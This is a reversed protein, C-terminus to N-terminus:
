DNRYFNLNPSWQYGLHHLIQRYAEGRTAVQTTKKLQRSYLPCFYPHIDHTQGEPPPGEDTLLPEYQKSTNILRSLHMAEMQTLYFYIDTRDRMYELFERQEVGVATRDVWSLTDFPCVKSFMSRETKPQAPKSLWDEYIYCQQLEATVASQPVVIDSFHDLFPSRLGNADKTEASCGFRESEKFATALFPDFLPSHACYHAVYENMRVPAGDFLDKRYLVNYSFTRNLFDAQIGNGFQRHQRVLAVRLPGYRAYEGQCKPTSPKISTTLQCGDDNLMCKKNVDTAAFVLYAHSWRTPEEFAETNLVLVTYWGDMLQEGKEVFLVPSLLANTVNELGIGCRKPQRHFWVRPCRCVSKSRICCRPADTTYMHTPTLCGLFVLAWHLSLSQGIHLM